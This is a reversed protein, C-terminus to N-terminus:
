FLNTLGPLNIDSTMGGLRERTKAETKKLADNFAAAILDEMIEKDGELLSPDVHVTRVDHRCNMTIEVLGAGSQGTVEIENLEAMAQQMEQKISQAQQFVQGFDLKM